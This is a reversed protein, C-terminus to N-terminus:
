EQLSWRFDDSLIVTANTRGSMEIEMHPERIGNIMTGREVERQLWVAVRNDPKIEQSSGRHLQQSGFYIPVSSGSIHRYLIPSARDAQNDFRFAGQPGGDSVRGQFEPALTYTQGPRISEIRTCEEVRALSNTLTSKQTAIEIAHMSREEFEYPSAAIGYDDNWQLQINSMLSTTTAIVKFGEGEIGSAFCLQYNAPILQELVGRGQIKVTLTYTPM